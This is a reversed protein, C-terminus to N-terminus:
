FDPRQMIEQIQRKVATDDDREKRELVDTVKDRKEGTYQYGSRIGAYHTLTMLRSLADAFRLENECNKRFDTESDKLHSEIQSSISCFFSTTWEGMKSLFEDMFFQKLAVEIESEKASLQEVTETLHKKEEILRDREMHLDYIEGNTRLEQLHKTLLRTRYDTNTQDIQSFRTEYTDLYKYFSALSTIYYYNATILYENNEWIWIYEGDSDVSRNRMILEDLYKIMEVQPYKTLFESILNNTKILLPSITSVKIRRKRLEQSKKRNEGRFEENCCIYYDNIIYDKSKSKFVKNYRITRQLAAQLKELFTDYEGQINSMEDDDIARALRDNIEEDLGGSIVNNIVFLNNFLADSSSSNEITSVDITGSLNGNYFKTDINSESLNWADRASEQVQEELKYYYNHSGNIIDFLKQLRKYEPSEAHIDSYTIKDDPSLYMLYEDGTIQYTPDKLIDAIKLDINRKDIIPQFATYIDMYCESVAYSFYLSPELCDKTFNWGKALKGSYQKSADIYCETLFKIGTAISNLMVDIEEESFRLRNLDITQVTDPSAANNLRIAGLFASIVWTVSDVYFYDDSFGSVNYPSVDFITKENRNVHTIIFQVTKKYVTLVDEADSPSLADFINFEDILTYLTCAGQAQTLLGIDSNDDSLLFGKESDYKDLIEACISCGIEQRPEYDYFITEARKDKVIGLLAKTCDNINPNTLKSELAELALRRFEKKNM